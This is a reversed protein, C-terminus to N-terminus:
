GDTKEDKDAKPKVEKANDDKKAQVKPKRVSKTTTKKTDTVGAIKEELEKLRKKLEDNEGQLKERADDYEKTESVMLTDDRSDKVGSEIIEVKGILSLRISNNKEDELFSVLEDLSNLQLNENFIRFSMGDRHILGNNMAKQIIVKTEFHGDTLISLFKGPSEEIITGIASKMYELSPNSPLRKAKPEVLYYIWLFDSMKKSSGEIKGFQMYAEKKSDIESLKLKYQEEEFVIAFKYTGRDYRESWSPAIYEKNCQLIKFNIFDGINTLDLFLGNRDIVVSRNIWFNENPKRRPNLDDKSELALEHAVKDRQEDTLGELPDVLSGTRAHIPVVYSITAGTNLFASDSEPPLWDSSRKIPVIKVKGHRIYGLKHGKKQQEM